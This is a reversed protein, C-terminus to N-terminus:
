DDDIYRLVVYLLAICMTIKAINDIMFHEKSTIQEISLGRNGQVEFETAGAQERVM